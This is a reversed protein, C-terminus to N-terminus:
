VVFTVLRVGACLCLRLCCYCASSFIVDYPMSGCPFETAADPSEPDAVEVKQDLVAFRVRTVGLGRHGM